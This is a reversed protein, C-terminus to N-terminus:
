YQCMSSRGRVGETYCVNRRRRKGRGMEAFKEQNLKDVREKLLSAWFAKGDEQTVEANAQGSTCHSVRFFAQFRPCDM